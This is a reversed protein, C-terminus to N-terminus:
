IDISAISLHCLHSRSLTRELVLEKVLSDIYSMSPVWCIRAKWFDLVGVDEVVAISM